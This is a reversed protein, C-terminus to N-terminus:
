GSDKRLPVSKIVVSGRTSLSGFITAFSVSARTTTPGVVMRFVVVGSVTSGPPVNDPWDSAFADGSKTQRGATLQANSFVPLSLADRGTNKASMEVRTFHRTVEVKDVTLTLAGNRASVPKVLRDVGPERGTVYGFAFRVAFVSAVLLLIVIIAAVARGGGRSGSPAPSSYGPSYGPRPHYGPDAGGGGASLAALGASLLVLGGVAFWVTSSRWSDTAFNIAVALATSVIYTPLAAVV